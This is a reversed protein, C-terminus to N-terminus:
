QAGRHVIVSAGTESDTFNVEPECWCDRSATHTRKHALVLLRRYANHGQKGETRAIRDIAEVCAGLYAVDRLFACDRRLARYRENITRQLESPVLRWHRPCMFRGSATLSGCGIADCARSSM